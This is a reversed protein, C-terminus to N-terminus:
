YHRGGVLSPNHGEKGVIEYRSSQILDTVVVDVEASLTGCHPCFVKNDSKPM